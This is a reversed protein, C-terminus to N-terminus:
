VCNHRKRRGVGLPWRRGGVVLLNPVDALHERRLDVSHVWPFSCANSDFDSPLSPTSLLGTANVVTGAQLFHSPGNNRLVHVRFGDGQREVREVRAGTMVRIAYQLCYAELMRLLERFRLYPPSGKPLQMGPLSVLRTPFVLACDLDV